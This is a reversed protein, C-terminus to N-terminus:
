AQYQGIKMSESGGKWDAKVVETEVLFKKDALDVQKLLLSTELNKYVISPRENTQTNVINLKVNSPTDDVVEKQLYLSENGKVSLEMTKTLKQEILPLVQARLYEPIQEIKDKPLPNKEEYIAKFTLSQGNAQISCSFIAAICFGLIKSIKM